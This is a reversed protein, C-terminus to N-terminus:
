LNAIQEGEKQSPSDEDTDKEQTNRYPVQRTSMGHAQRAHQKSKQTQRTLKDPARPNDSAAERKELRMRKRRQSYQTEFMTPQLLRKAEAPPAELPGNQQAGAGQQIPDKEWLVDNYVIRQRPISNMGWEAKSNLLNDYEGEQIVLTERIQRELSSQYTGLKKVNFQPAKGQDGHHATWHKFLASEKSGKEFLFFHEGM